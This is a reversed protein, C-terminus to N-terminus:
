KCTSKKLQKAATGMCASSHDWVSATETSDETFASSGEHLNKIELPVRHYMKNNGCLVFFSLVTIKDM